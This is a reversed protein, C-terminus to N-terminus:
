IFNAPRNRTEPLFKHLCVLLISCFIGFFMFITEKGMFQALLPFAGSVAINPIWNASVCISSASPTLSWAPPFIEPVLMWPIPGLGVSFFAVFLISFIPALAPLMSFSAALALLSLASGAVSVLAVPRRGARELLWIAVLTMVLNVLALFVPTSPSKGIIMSSYFFIANVGSLQQGAQLIIGIFLSKRAEPIKFTILDLFGHSQSAMEAEPINTSTTNDKTGALNVEKNPFLGCVTSLFIQLLVVLIGVAFTFRWIWLRNGSDAAYSIIEAIFVASCLFLQFFNTFIGRLHLPAISSLYLPVLMGSAGAAFGILCRGVILMSLNSAFAMFIYAIALPANLALIAAKISGFRTILSPALSAGIWGGLPLGMGVLGWAGSSVSFCGTLGFYSSGDDFKSCNIFINSPVNISSIAYGFHFATLACTCAIGILKLRTISHLPTNSDMDQSSSDSNKFSKMEVTMIAM